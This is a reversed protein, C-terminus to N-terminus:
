TLIFMISKSYKTESLCSKIPFIRGVDNHFVKVHKAGKFRTRRGIGEEEDNELKDTNEPKDNHSHDELTTM